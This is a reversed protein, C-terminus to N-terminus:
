KIRKPPQNASPAEAACREGSPKVASVTMQRIDLDTKTEVTPTGDVGKAPKQATAVGSTAIEQESRVTGSVEVQQGVYDRLNVDNGTLQYTAPNSDPNPAEATLVFTNDALGSRLCGAVTMPEMRPQAGTTRQAEPVAADRNCAGAAITLAVGAAIAMRNLSDSKM